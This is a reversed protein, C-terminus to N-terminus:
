DCQMGIDLIHYATPVLVSFYKQTKLKVENGMTLLQRAIGFKWLQHVCCGFAHHTM